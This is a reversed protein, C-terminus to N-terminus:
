FVLPMEKLKKGNKSSIVNQSHLVSSFDPVKDCLVPNRWHKARLKKVTCKDSAGLMDKFDAYFEADKGVLKSKTTFIKKRVRILRSQM